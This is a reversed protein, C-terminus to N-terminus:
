VAVASMDPFQAIGKVVGSGSHTEETIVVAVLLKPLTLVSIISSIVTSVITGSRGTTVSRGRVVLSVVGVRVPVASAHVRISTSTPPSM